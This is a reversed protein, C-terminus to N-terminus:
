VTFISLSSTVERTVAFDCAQQTHYLLVLQKGGGGRQKMGKDNMQIEPAGVYQGCMQRIM